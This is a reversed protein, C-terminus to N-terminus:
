DRIILVGRWTEIFSVKDQPLAVAQPSLKLALPALVLFSLLEPSGFTTRWWKLILRLLRCAYNLAILLLAIHAVLKRNFYVKEALGRQRPCQLPPVDLNHSVHGQVGM